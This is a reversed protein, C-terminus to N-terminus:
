ILQLPLFNLTANSSVNFYGTWVARTNYEKISHSDEDFKKNYEIQEKCLESTDPILLICLPPFM